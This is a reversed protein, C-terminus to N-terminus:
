SRFCPTPVPALVMASHSLLYEELVQGPSWDQVALAKELLAKREAKKPNLFLEMISNSSLARCNPILWRALDTVFRTIFDSYFGEPEDRIRRELEDPLGEYEAPDLGSAAAPASRPRFQFYATMMKCLREKCEPSLQSFNTILVSLPELRSSGFLRLLPLLTDPRRSLFPGCVDYYVIHFQDQCVELFDTLNGRHIKIVAGAGGLQELARCFENRSSELGWINEPRIGLGLLVQLDNLPEPGCLYLVTLENPELKKVRSSHFDMWGNLESEIESAIEKLRPYQLVRGVIRKVEDRRVITSLAAEATLRRVATSLVQERVKQKVPQTYSHEDVAM